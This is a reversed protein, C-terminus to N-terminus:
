LHAILFNLDYRNRVIEALLERAADNFITTVIQGNSHGSLVAVTETNAVVCHSCTLIKSGDGILVGSGSSIVQINAPRRIVSLIRVVSNQVQQFQNSFDM